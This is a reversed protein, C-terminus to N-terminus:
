FIERTYWFQEWEAAIRVDGASLLGPQPAGGPAAGGGGGAGAVAAGGELPAEPLPARSYLVVLAGSIPM